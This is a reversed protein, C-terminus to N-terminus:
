GERSMQEHAACTPSCFKLREKTVCAKHEYRRKWSNFVQKSGRGIITSEILENSPTQRGCRQCPTHGDRPKYYKNYTDTKEKLAPKLAEETYSYGNKEMKAIDVGSSVTSTSGGYYEKWKLHLVIRKPSDKFDEFWDKIEQLAKRTARKKIAPQNFTGSGERSIVAEVVPRKAIEYGEIVFIEKPTEPLMKTIEKKKYEEIQTEISRFEETLTLKKM